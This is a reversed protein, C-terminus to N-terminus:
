KQMGKQKTEQMYREFVQSYEKRAKAYDGGCAAMADAWTEIAPSFSMSGDIFKLLRRDADALKDRLEKVDAAHITIENALDARARDRESQTRAQLEELRKTGSLLKTLKEDATKAAEDLGASHGRAYADEIAANIRAKDLEANDSADQENAPVDAAGADAANGHSEEKPMEVLATPWKGAAIIEQKVAEYQETEFPDVIEDVFGLAKTEEPMMWREEAMLALMAEPTKGAREAYFKAAEQECDRLSKAMKEMEAADGTVGAWANHILFRGNRAISRKNCAVAILTAMSAAVQVRAVTEARKSLEGIDQVIGNGEWVDGGPSFIDFVVRKVTAPISAILNRMNQYSVEWGIVGVVDIIAETADNAMARMFVGQKMATM